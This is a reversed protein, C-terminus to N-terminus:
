PCRGEGDSVALAVGGKCLWVKMASGPQLEFSPETQGVVAADLAIMVKIPAEGPSGDHRIQVWAEGAALSRRELLLLTSPTGGWFGSLEAVPVSQGAHPSGKPFGPSWKFSPSAEALVLMVDSQPWVVQTRPGGAWSPDFDPVAGYIRQEVRAQVDELGVQVILLLLVGFIALFANSLADQQALSDARNSM